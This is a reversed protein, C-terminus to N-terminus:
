PSLLWYKKNHGIKVMNYFLIKFDKNFAHWKNRYTPKNRVHQCYCADMACVIINKWKTVMKQFQDCLDVPDIVVIHEQKKAWILMVIKAYEWNLNALSRPNSLKKQFQIGKQKNKKSTSIGEDNPCSLKLYVHL